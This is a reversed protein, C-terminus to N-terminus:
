NAKDNNGGSENPLDPLSFINKGGPQDYGEGLLSELLANNEYYIVLYRNGFDTGDRVEKMVQNPTWTKIGDDFIVTDAWGPPAVKLDSEMLAITHAKQVATLQPIKDNGSTFAIYDDLLFKGLDSDAEVEAMLENPSFVKDGIPYVKQEREDTPIDKELEKRMQIKAQDRDM